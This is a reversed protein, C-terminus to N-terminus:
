AGAEGILDRMIAGLLRANVFESDVDGSPDDGEWLVLSRARAAHGAFTAPRMEVMRALLLRQVKVCQRRVTQAAKGTPTDHNADFDTARYIREWGDFEACAKLLDIDPSIVPAIEPGSVVEADRMLYRLLRGTTTNPHEMSFAGDANHVALCRARAAIGDATTARLAGLQLTLAHQVDIMRRQEVDELDAAAAGPVADCPMAQIAREHAIFREALVLLDADPHVAHHTGEAAVVGPLVVSAAAATLLNRRNM